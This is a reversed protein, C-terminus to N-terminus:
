DNTESYQYSPPVIFGNENACDKRKGESGGSRRRRKEQPCTTLLALTPARVRDAPHSPVGNSKLCLVLIHLANIIESLPVM